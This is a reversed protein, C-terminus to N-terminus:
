KIGLKAKTLPGIMGTVPLGNQAQFKKIAEVTTLSQSLGFPINDLNLQKDAKGKGTDPNQVIVSKIHNTQDNLLKALCFKATLEHSNKKSVSAADHGGIMVDTDNIFHRGKIILKLRQPCATKNLDTYQYADWSDIKAKQPQDENNNSDMEPVAGSAPEDGASYDTAHNTQFTCLGGSVHCSLGSSWTTEGAEQYYINLDQNNYSSGVPITVTINHDFTLHLDAIGVSVAGAINAGVNASQLASTIDELDLATLDMAGGGTQTMTTGGPIVVQADGNIITYDTNFIVSNVNTPDSNGISIFGSAIDELFKDSTPGNNIPENSSESGAPLLTPYDDANAQWVTAFNWTGHMPKKTAVDLGQFYNSLPEDATNVASCGSFNDGGSCSDPNDGALADYYNNNISDSGYDSSYLGVLGEGNGTAIQGSSWCNTLSGGSWFGILGGNVEEGAVAGSAYSNSIYASSVASYIGILGGSALGGNVASRSYSNTIKVYIGSEGFIQGVSGVLGGFAVPMAEGDGGIWNVQGTASTKDIIAEDGEGAEIYGVLGGVDDYGSVTGGVGVDTVTSMGLMGGALGGASNNGTINAGSIQLNKVTANSLTSFLGVGWITSSNITLGTIKHGDGDFIGSFNNYREMGIPMFGTGDDYHWQWDAASQAPIDQKLKFDDRNAYNAFELENVNHIMWPFDVTGGSQFTADGVDQDDQMDQWVLYPYGSNVGSKIRWLGNFDWDADTFTEAKKMETTGIGSENEGGSSEQGSAATDWFSNHVYADNDLGLLGGVNEGTGSVKGTSYCDEIYDQNIGALGGVQNNDGGTVKGTAYSGIIYSGNYGALGGFNLNGTAAATVDSSSYSYYISGYNEGAIGGATDNGTVSGQSYSNYINGDNEGALGGSDSGTGAVIGSFHSSKIINDNEGVLGGTEYGGGYVAGEASCNIITGSNAGALVSAMDEGHITANTIKLNEVIGSSGIYYFLGANESSHNINLHDVTFGAGDLTGDFNNDSIWGIPAFGSGENGGWQWDDATEASFSNKLKLNDQYAYGAFQLENIDSIMWPFSKTGGGQFTASGVTEDDQMDQWVLYPYGNNVGSKIKWLGYFDWGADTFTSAKKMDDTSTPAANGDPGDGNQVTAATDFFCNYDGDDDNGFAGGVYSGSGTVAGTAYSNVALGENYGVLGGVYGAGAATVTGTSYTNIVSGYNNGVLGGFSSEGSANHAIVSAASYSYDVSGENYCALGGSCYQSEISGEAYSYSIYGYNDGAIGGSDYEDAEVSGSFHSSKITGDNEGVLGGIEDAGSISEGDKTSVSVNAIVGDNEGAVAGVYDDGSVIIDTLKLNEVTGGEGAISYFLGIDDDDQNIHLNSITFGAGDLTGYFGSEQGFGIPTFNDIDKCDIDNDLVYHGGLDPINELEQCTTIHQFASTHYTPVPTTAATLVASEDGGNFAENRASIKIYYTTDAQLESLTYSSDTSSTGITNSSMWDPDTTFKISYGIITSYQNAEPPTWSFTISSQDSSSMTLDTPKALQHPEDDFNTNQNDGLARLEPYGGGVIEWVSHEGSFNWVANDSGDVFPQANSNYKFYEPSNWNSNVGTCGAGTGPMDYAGQGNVYHGCLAQNGRSLDWYSHSVVDTGDSSFGIGVLGGNDTATSIPGASFCDFIDPTSMSTGSKARGAIGGAYDGYQVLGANYCRRIISSGELNGVIGGTGNHGSITGLNYSDVISTTGEAEGLIGGAPGPYVDVNSSTVAAENAIESITADTASGALAGVKGKGSVTGTLRLQSVTAGSLNAFLGYYGDQNANINLTITHGGGDFHGTFPNSQTGIIATNSACSINNKLKYYATLDLNVDFLQGCTTIEYPSGPSSGDDGSPFIQVTADRLTPLDSSNKKWVSDFDWIQTGGVKFPAITSTNKFYDPETGGINIATCDDFPTGANCSANNSRTEDFFIDSTTISAGVESAINYISGSDGGRTALSFDDSLVIPHSYIAADSVFGAAYDGTDVTGSAYSRVISATNSNSNVYSILGAFVSTSHINADSYCDAVTGGDDIGILGGNYRTASVSGHTASKTITSDDLYGVLGGTYKTSGTVAGSFDVHEIQGSNYVHGALGGIFMGSGTPMNVTANTFKLNKVTGGNLENIFGNGNGNGAARSIYLGDITHNRGDLVGSFSSIPAFGQNSNWNSTDTCDINGTLVYDSSTNSAIEQLQACTTIRYPFDATGDGNGSYATAMAKGPLFFGFIFVATLVAATLKLFPLDFFESGFIKIQNKNKTM